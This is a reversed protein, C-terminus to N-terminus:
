LSLKLLCKGDISSGNLLGHVDKPPHLTDDEESTIAHCSDTIVKRKFLVDM